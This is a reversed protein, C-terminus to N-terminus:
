IVNSRSRTQWVIGESLKYQLLSVNEIDIPKSSSFNIGFYCSIEHVIILSSIIVTNKKKTKSSLFIVILLSKPWYLLKKTSKWSVSMRLAELKTGISCGHLVAYVKTIHSARHNEVVLVCHILSAVHADVSGSLTLMFSGVRWETRQHRPFWLIWLKDMIASQQSVGREAFPM